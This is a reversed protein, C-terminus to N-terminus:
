CSIRDVIQSEPILIPSAASGTEDYYESRVWYYWEDTRCHINDGGWERGFISVNTTGYLQFCISVLEGVDYRAKPKVREPQRHKLTKARISAASVSKITEREKILAQGNSITNGKGNSPVRKKSKM